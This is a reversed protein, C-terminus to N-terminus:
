RWDMPPLDDPNGTWTRSSTVIVDESEFITIELEPKEYKEM